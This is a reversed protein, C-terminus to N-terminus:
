KTKEWHAYKRRPNRCAPAYGVHGRSPALHRDERSRDHLACLGLARSQLLSPRFEPDSSTAAPRDRPGSHPCSSPTTASNTPSTSMGLPPLQPVRWTDHVPQNWENNPALDKPYWSNCNKNPHTQIILTLNTFFNINYFLYPRWEHIVYKKVNLNTLMQERDIELVM